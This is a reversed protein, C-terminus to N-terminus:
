NSKLQLIKDHLQSMTLILYVLGCLVVYITISECWPFDTRADLFVVMYRNSWILMLDNLITQFM